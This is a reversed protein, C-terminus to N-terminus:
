NQTMPEEFQKPLDFPSVSKTVFKDAGANMCSDRTADRADATYMLIFPREHGYQDRISRCVEIGTMGPMMVDLIIVDPIDNDIIKLAQKGSYAGRVTYGAQELIFKCLQVLSTEDDVVLIKSKSM